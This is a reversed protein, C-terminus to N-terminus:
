LKGGNKILLQIEYFVRETTKKSSNIKKTNKHNFKEYFEPLLNNWNKKLKKRTKIRFNLDDLNGTLYIPCFDVNNNGCWGEFLKFMFRYVLVGDIFFKKYKTNQLASDLVSLVFTMKDKNNQRTHWLKGRMMSSFDDLQIHLGNYKTALARSITSKGAGNPGYILVLLSRM